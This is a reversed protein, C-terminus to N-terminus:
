YLASYLQDDHVTCKKMVHQHGAGPLAACHLMKCLSRMTVSSYCISARVSSAKPQDQVSTHRSPLGEGAPSSELSPAEASFSQDWDEPDAGQQQQNRTARLKGTLASTSAVAASSTQQQRSKGAPDDAKSSDTSPMGGADREGAEVTVSPTAAIEFLAAAAQSQGQQQSAEPRQMAAKSCAQEPHAPQPDSM